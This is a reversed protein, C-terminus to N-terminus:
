LGTQDSLHQIELGFRSANASGPDTTVEVITDEAITGSM